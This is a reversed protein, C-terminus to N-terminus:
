SQGKAICLCVIPLYDMPVVITNVNPPSETHINYTWTRVKYALKHRRGRVHLKRAMEDNFMCECLSCEYGGHPMKESKPVPKVYEEGIPDQSPENGQQVEINSLVNELREEADAQTNTSTTTHLSTGGEFLTKAQPLKSSVLPVTKSAM